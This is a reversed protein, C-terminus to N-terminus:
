SAPSGVEFHIVVGLNDLKRLEEFGKRFREAASQEDPTKLWQNGCQPCGFLVKEWEWAARHQRSRVSLMSFPRWASRSGNPVSHRIRVQESGTQYSTRVSDLSLTV